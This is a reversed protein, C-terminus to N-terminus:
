DGFKDLHKWVQDMVQKKYDENGTIFQKIALNPYEVGTLDRETLTGSSGTEGIDRGTPVGIYEAEVDVLM